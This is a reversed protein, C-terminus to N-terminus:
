IKAHALIYARVKGSQEDDLKARKSMRPLINEWKMVDHSEPEYLKHCKKCSSAWITKGEEMQAETFNKKVQAVVQEPSMENSAAKKSSCRVVFLSLGLLTITVVVKNM